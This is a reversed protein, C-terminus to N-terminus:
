KFWGLIKDKITSNVVKTEPILLENVIISDFDLTNIGGGCSVIHKSVAEIILYPDADPDYTKIAQASLSGSGITLFDTTKFDIYLHKEFYSSYKRVISKNRFVVMVQLSVDEPEFTTPYEEFSEDWEADIDPHDVSVFWRQFRTLYQLEGAFAFIAFVQPNELLEPNIARM